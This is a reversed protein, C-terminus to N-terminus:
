EAIALSSSSASPASSAMRASTPASIQSSSSVGPLNSAAVRAGRDLEAAKEAGAEAAVVQVKAAKKGPKLGSAELLGRKKADYYYGRSYFRV